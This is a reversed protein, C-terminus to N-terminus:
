GFKATAGSDVKQKRDGDLRTSIGLIVVEERSILGVYEVGLRDADVDLWLVGVM